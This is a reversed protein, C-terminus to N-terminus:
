AWEALINIEPAPAYENCLASGGNSPWDSLACVHIKAIGAAVSKDVHIRVSGTYNNYHCFQAGSVIVEFYVTGTIVPYNLEDHITVAILVHREMQSQSGITVTVNIWECHKYSDKNTTVDWIRVLYDYKFWLFDRVVVCAIDVSAIVTWKGFLDEPNECPWNMRFSVTAYGTENTRAVLVTM